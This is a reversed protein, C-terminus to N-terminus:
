APELAAALRAFALAAFAPVALNVVPVSLACALLLGARVAPARHRQATRRAEALPSRLALAAVLYQRGLVLAGLLWLVAVAFPGLFPVTLFAVVMALAMGGFGNAAAILSDALTPRPGAPHGAARALDPLMLPAFAAAVPAMLMVSLAMAFAVSAASLLTGLGHLPGALPITLTEPEAWDILALFLAYTGALLAAALLIGLLFLRRVAPRALDARAAALARRIM